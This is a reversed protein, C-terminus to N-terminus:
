KKEIIDHEGRKVDFRDPDSDLHIVLGEKAFEKKLTQAIEIARKRLTPHVFRTARLEALYVLAPLSGTIRNPLRYGMAIYYQREEPSCKLKNILSEQKAIFREAESRLKDPLEELYWKAFAHNMVVLPMRQIVARHRQIDRFSGFDLLFKFQLTGCESLEKPLETKVPRAKLTPKYKTLAKKDVLNKSLEFDKPRKEEYYYNERMWEENFKETTEFREHGFSSPYAEKLTDEITEAIQRVEKLSHHRLRMVHDAAQRFNTHWALNTSSGSPLFGRMIDFARANIAKTYIKENETEGMPFKDKLFGDLEKLGKLYFKRWNELITSSAKTGLPDIFNQKAFDIYRTSAEQGSYLPWDQIAKAALMSVGEIFITATGCDGISKHGYGVYYTSLFKGPGKDALVKLHSAIGGISRSHLAQLMAESEPGITAGTNLVVVIGGQPLNKKHHKLPEQTV